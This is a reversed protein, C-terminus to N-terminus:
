EQTETLLLYSPAHPFCLAGCFLSSTDGVGHNRALSSPLGCASHSGPLQLAPFTLVEVGLFFVEKTKLEEQFPAKKPVFRASFDRSLSVRATFTNLPLYPM